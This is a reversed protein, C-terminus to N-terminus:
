INIKSGGIRRRLAALGPGLSQFHPNFGFKFFEPSQYTLGVRFKATPTLLVGANGGFAEDWSEYPVSADASRPLVSNIQSKFTLRAIECNGGVGVSFWRNFAYAISPNIKSTILSERNVYYRGAWSNGDNASLGFDSYVGIGFWLRERLQYALFFSGLPFFVGANGGGGGRTTTKPGVDFNTMPLIAGFSVMLQSADLLTLGAPNSVATSADAAMAARGASATGLDPAGTEYLELGAGLAIGHFLVISMWASAVAWGFRSKSSKKAKRKASLNVTLTGRTIQV